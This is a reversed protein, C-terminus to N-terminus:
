KHKSDNSKADIKEKSDLEEHCVDSYRPGQKRMQKMIDSLNDIVEELIMLVLLLLLGLFMIIVILPKLV